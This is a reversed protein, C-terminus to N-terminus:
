KNFKPNVFVHHSSQVSHMGFTMYLDFDCYAFLRFRGDMRKIQRRYESKTKFLILILISSAGAADERWQLLLKYEYKYFHMSSQYFNLKLSVFLSFMM